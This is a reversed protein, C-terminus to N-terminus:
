KESEDAMVEEKTGKVVKKYYYILILSGLLVVTLNAGVMYLFPGILGAASDEPETVEESWGETLLIHAARNNYKNIEEVSNNHDASVWLLHYTSVPIFPINLTVSEQSALSINIWRTVNDMYDVSLAADFSAEKNGHNTIRVDLNVLDGVRPKDPTVRLNSIILEAIRPAVSLTVNRERDIVHDGLTSNTDAVVWLRHTGRVADWTFEIEIDEEPEIDIKIWRTYNDSRGVSLVLDFSGIGKGTNNINLSLVVSDGEFIEPLNVEIDSMRIEPYAEKVTLIRSMESPDGLTANHDATILIEYEGPALIITFDVQATQGPTLALKRWEEPVGDVSLSTDFTGSATGSNTIASSIDILEGELPEDPDIVMSLVRIDPENLETVQLPLETSNFLEYTEYYVEVTIVYDGTTDPATIDKEFEGNVDVSTYWYSDDLDMTVDAGEPITGDSLIASGTVSVTQGPLVSTQNSEAELSIELEIVTISSEYYTTIGWTDNVAIINMVHEGSTLPAKVTASFNGNRDTNVNWTDEGLTVTVPSNEMMAQNDQDDTSDYEVSGTIFIDEDPYFEHEHESYITADEPPPFVYFEFWDSEWSDDIYRYEIKSNQPFSGDSSAAGPITASGDLTLNWTNGGQHTMEFEAFGFCIDGICWQYYIFPETVGELEAVLEIISGGHGNEYDPNTHGFPYNPNTHDSIFEQQNLDTANAIPHVLATMALGLIILITITRNM